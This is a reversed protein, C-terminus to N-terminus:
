VTFIVQLNLIKTQSKVREINEKRYINANHLDTWSIDSEKLGLMFVM